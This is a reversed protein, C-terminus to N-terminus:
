LRHRILFDPPEKRARTPSRLSATAYFRDFRVGNEAMSDLHPTRIDENGNFGVDEWGQDDSMLLMVNPRREALVAFPFILLLFVTPRM